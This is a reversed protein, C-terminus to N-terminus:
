RPRKQQVPDILFSSEIDWRRKLGNPDYTSAVTDRWMSSTVFSHGASTYSPQSSTPQIQSLPAMSSAPSYQQQQMSDHLLSLDSSGMSSPTYLPPSSQPLSSNNADIISPPTEFATNWQSSSKNTDSKVKNEDHKNSGYEFIPTPNWATQDTGIANTAITMPQQQYSTMMALAPGLSRDHDNHDTSIPPTMPLHGTHYHAQTTPEHHEQDGIIPHQYKMDLPPSPQIKISPSGHPFTSKLEFPKSTDASFAERLADIQNKM